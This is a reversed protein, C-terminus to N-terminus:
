PIPFIIEQKLRGQNLSQTQENMKWYIISLYKGKMTGFSLRWVPHKWLSRGSPLDRSQGCLPGLRLQCSLLVQTDGGRGVRGDWRLGWFLQSMPDLGEKPLPCSATHPFYSCRKPNYKVPFLPVAFDKPQKKTEQHGSVETENHHFSDGKIKVLGWITHWLNSTRKDRILYHILIKYETPINPFFFHWPGSLFM